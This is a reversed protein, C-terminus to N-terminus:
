PCNRLETSEVQVTLEKLKAELAPDVSKVQLWVKPVVTERAGVTATRVGQARLTGLRARAAEETRFVGLSLAWRHQGEEQVIFYDEIGLSRLESAKRLAAQRPNAVKQAPIFVWWGATEETRRQSLRPGLSLPELTKEARPADTLTFSGWELCKLAVPPPPPPEARIAAVPKVPTPPPLDKPAVVKLKEPDIQRALPAPDAAADPPSGYRWWAFFGVNVLLLILFATRM